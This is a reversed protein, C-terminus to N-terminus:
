NWGRQQLHCSKPNKSPQMINWQIYVGGMKLKKIPRGMAYYSHLESIIQM